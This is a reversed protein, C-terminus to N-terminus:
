IGFPENPAGSMMVKVGGFDAERPIPTPPIDGNKPIDMETWPTEPFWEFEDPTFAEDVNKPHYGCLVLLGKFHNVMDNINLDDGETVVSFTTKNMTIQLKM